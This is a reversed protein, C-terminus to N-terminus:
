VKVPNFQETRSFWKVNFPKVSRFVTAGPPFM